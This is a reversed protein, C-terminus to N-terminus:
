LDHSEPTHPPSVTRARTQGWTAGARDAAGGWTAIGLSPAIESRVGGAGAGLLGPAGESDDGGPLLPEAPVTRALPSGRFRRYVVGQGVPCGWLTVLQGHLTCTLSGVRPRPPTCCGTM